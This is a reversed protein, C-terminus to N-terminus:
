RRAVHVESDIDEHGPRYLCSSDSIETVSFDLWERM